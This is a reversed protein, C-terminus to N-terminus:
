KHRWISTARASPYRKLSPSVDVPLDVFDLNLDALDAAAAAATTSGNSRTVHVPRDSSTPEDDTTASQVTVRVNHKRNSTENNESVDDNVTQCSADGAISCQPVHGEGVEVM